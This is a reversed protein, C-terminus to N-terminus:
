RGRRFTLLAVAGAAVVGVETAVFLGLQWASVGVVALRGPGAPGDAVGALLAALLGAPVAAGAALAMSRLLRHGARAVLWAAALGAGVVVVVAFIQVAATAPGRPVAALLPLAPMAAVQSSGATVTAAAGVTFGPGALYGLAYIVANPVLALDLALLAIAAVPGGGLASVAHGVGAGHVLLAALLLVTSGALLVGIAATGAMAPMRVWEPQRSWLVRGLGAGRAAGWGAAISGFLWGALLAAFPSPRVQASSGAAAVFTALAGYPLGIAVAVTAVGAGDHVRQGRALVAASRAVLYALGLSLLLPALAFHGGSLALSVRHGVLWLQLATRIAATASSSARSDAAWAVLVVVLMTAVGVAVAWGASLCGRWWVSGAAGSGAGDYDTTTEPRTLLDTM